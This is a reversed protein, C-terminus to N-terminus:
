KKGPSSHGPCHGACGQKQQGCSGKEHGPGNQQGKQCNGCSCTGKGQCGTGNANNDCKGDGNADVFNSGKANKCQTGANDCIGDKNADVFKGCNNNAVTVQKAQDTGAAEGASVQASVQGIMFAAFVVTLFIKSLRKM